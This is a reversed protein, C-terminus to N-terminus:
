QSSRSGLDGATIVEYINRVLLDCDRRVALSYNRSFESSSPILVEELGEM